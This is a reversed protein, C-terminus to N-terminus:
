PAEGGEDTATDAPMPAAGGGSSGGELVVFEVRRNRAMARTGFGVVRPRSAGLGVVQIMDAPMGAEILVDAVAQARRQSLQVNYEDRGRYDAHGEVAVRRWEQHQRWLDVIASLVPYAAPKVVWRDTDFLVREELVIRDDIMEILGEDPCGDGDDLGNVVERETPCRDDVDIVGDGDNDADPCGDGDEFQDFDEPDNPCQDDGDLIRDEDNDAEPCGDEDEFQDMDEPVDPCRDIEDVIGDGDRDSPPAEVPEEVEPTRPTVHFGVEIGFLLVRADDDTVLNDPSDPQILQFYRVTPGLTIPGVPIGWGIGAEVGPRGEAGTVGLGAVGELYPGVAMDEDDLFPLRIRLAAGALLFSGAGPDSVGALAPSDSDTLYGARVRAGVFIWENLVRFGSASVTGGAGFADDAWGALPVAATAEGGVVWQARGKSPNSLSLLCAGVVVCMVAARGVTGGQARGSM